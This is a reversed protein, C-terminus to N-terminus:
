FRKGPPLNYLESSIIYKFISQLHYFPICIHNNLELKNSLWLQFIYTILNLTKIANHSRPWNGKVWLASFLHAPRLNAKGKWTFGMTRDVNSLLALVGTQFNQVGMISQQVTWTEQHSKGLSSLLGGWGLNQQKKQSREPMEQQKHSLGAKTQWLTPAPTPPTQSFVSRGRRQSARGAAEKGRPIM